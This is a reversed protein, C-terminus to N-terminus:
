IGDPDLGDYVEWTIESFDVYHRNKIIIYRGCMQECINCYTYCWMECDDKDVSDGLRITLLENTYDKTQFGGDYKSKNLRHGEPCREVKATTYFTDFM